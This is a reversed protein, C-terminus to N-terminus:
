VSNDNDYLAIAFDRARTVGGSPAVLGASSALKTPARLSTCTNRAARRAADHAFSACDGVRHPNRTFGEGERRRVFQEQGHCTRNAQWSTLDKSETGERSQAESREPRLASERLALSSGSTGGAPVKAPREPHRIMREWMGGRPM